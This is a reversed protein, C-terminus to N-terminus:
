VQSLSSTEDLTEDEETAADAEDFYVSDEFDENKVSNPLYNFNDNFVSDETPEEKPIGLQQFLEDGNISNSNSEDNYYNVQNDASSDIPMQTQEGTASMRM